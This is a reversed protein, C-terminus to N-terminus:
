RTALWRTRIRELEGNASLKDIAAGLLGALAPDAKRSVWFYSPEAALVAPLVRLRSGLRESRIYHQLAMENVYAFRGHGALIKNLNVRNDDTADDVKVGAAKLHDTFASGRQSTVLAGLRVLDQLDRVMAPDGARAALLHRIMYVPKGTPVAIARRRQTPILGCAADLSGSELGAEIGPLSRSRRYGTFHLRPEIREIAAMVDPCIGTVREPQAVWKPAITEQAAVRVDMGWAGACAALGTALALLRLARRARTAETKM